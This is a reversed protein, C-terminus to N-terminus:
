ENKQTIINTWLLEFDSLSHLHKKKYFDDVYKEYRKKALYAESMDLREFVWVSKKFKPLKLFLNKNYILKGLRTLLHRLLYILNIKIKIKSEPRNLTKNFYFAARLHNLGDDFGIISAMLRNREQKKEEIDFARVRGTTYFEDVFSQLESYDAAIVSGKYLEDRIFDTNSNILITPRDHMCWAELATTTEFGLWIDSIAILDHIEEREKIYIVNDYKSLRIIENMEEGTVSPNRASPHRKLFFLIDPNETIVRELVGEVEYMQGEMWKARDPKGPANMYQIEKRGQENFLKGFSWAAYTIVKKYKEKGYKRLIAERKQFEYIKYRDFGTAGTLVMKDKSEPLESALFDLTRQSWHCIYDQYFIKNKNYGWYNFTGNTRFNGESILSFVKIGSEAAYKTIEYYYHSGIANPTLVIDPRKKYIQHIDWKLCFEVKCNLYKEIFITLLVVIEFDRGRPNDIFCLVNIKKTM